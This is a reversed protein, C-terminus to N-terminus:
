LTYSMRCSLDTQILQLKVQFVTINDTCWTSDSVQQPATTKKAYKQSREFVKLWFLNGFM